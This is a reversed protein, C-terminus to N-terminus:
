VIKSTVSSNQKKKKVTEIKIEAIKEFNKTSYLIKVKLTKPTEFIVCVFHKSETKKMMKSLFDKMLIFRLKNRGM